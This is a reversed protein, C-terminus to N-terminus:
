KIIVKKVNSFDGYCTNGNVTKYARVKFYWTKKRKLKKRTCTVKGPKRITATKKYGTNKKKSMHIEYGTCDKVRKWTLKVASAGLKKASKLKTKAPADTVAPPTDGAQNKQREEEKKREEERKRAEEKEKLGKLTNEANDLIQIVEAPLLQKQEQSMADYEKRISKIQNEKSLDVAGISRIRDAVEDARQRNYEEVWGGIEEESPLNSLAKRLEGQTTDLNTVADSAALYAQQCGHNWCITRYKNILALRKTIGDRNPLDLADRSGNGLDAGLGYITFQFRVVDGDEVKREKFSVSPAKNNVFFYWGSQNSYAFEGLNPFDPNGTNNENTPPSVRTGDWNVTEPMNRICAPIDLKGTDANNISALYWGRFEYTLNNIEMLRKFIDECSDGQTFSIATPEALYGQGLTFKEVSAYVTGDAAKATTRFSLLAAVTLFM